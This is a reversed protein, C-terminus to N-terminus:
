FRIHFRDFEGTAPRVDSKIDSINNGMRDRLERLFVALEKPEGEALLEVNGDPLNRVYGTVAFGRAIQDTTARFGVGQVNGSFTIQRREARETM